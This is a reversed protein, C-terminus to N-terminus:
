NPAEMADVAIVYGHVAVLAKGLESSIIAGADHMPRPDSIMVWGVPGSVAYAGRWAPADDDDVPWRRSYTAGDRFRLELRVFPRGPARIQPLPEGVVREQETM